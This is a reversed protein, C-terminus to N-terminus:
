DSNSWTIVGRRPYPGAGRLIGLPLEDDHVEVWVWAECSASIRDRDVRLMASLRYHALLADIYDADAQDLGSTAGTGQWKPGVFYQYLDTEPSILSGDAAVDNGVPIYMGELLPHLCSYGGAQNSYLIGSPYELILGLGVADWLHIIPRTEVIQADDIMVCGKLLRV